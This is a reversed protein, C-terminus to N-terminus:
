ALTPMEEEKEVEVVQSTNLNGLDFTACELLDKKGGHGKIETQM